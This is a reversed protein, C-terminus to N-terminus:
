LARRYPPKQTSVTIIVLLTLMICLPGTTLATLIVVTLHKTELGRIAQLCRIVTRRAVAVAVVLPTLLIAIYIKPQSQGAMYGKFNSNATSQIESGFYAGSGSNYGGGGGGLYLTTGVPTFYSADFFADGGNNKGNGNSNQTAPYGIVSSMLIPWTMSGQKIETPSYYFTDEGVSSNPSSKFCADQISPYYKTGGGGGGGAVALSSLEGNPLAFNVSVMTAGGGSNAFVFSGTPRRQTSLGNGSEFGTINTWQSGDSKSFGICVAGKGGRGSSAEGNAGSFIVMYTAGNVGKVSIDYEIYGNAQYHFEDKTIIYDVAAASVTSGNSSSRIKNILDYSAFFVSFAAILVSLIIISAKRKNGM